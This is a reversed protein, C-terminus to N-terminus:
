QTKLFYLFYAAALLDASGGPSLSRAIFARDLKNLTETSPYPTRDLLSRIKRRLELQTERDSRAIVNTDDTAALIHLLAACGADNLSMGNAIGQELIPLGTQLVTPFGAEAEGRIGTIGYQTYLKQGTTRANEKTVGAFDRQSLGQVMAACEALLSEPSNRMEKSLRGAAGCLLGMTFIAGKHTNVGGTARYMTQEALRGHLRLRLFTEEPPLMQTEMGVRACDEFYPRLAAASSAFTFIDMDRHSGSNQRDVLGPKPTTCVEYLLSKEALSGISRSEAQWVADRLLSNTKQQLAEVSHARRSSCLFAPNGCLLCTREPLDLAQRSLKEGGPSLVDMDFLRGVSQSDEIEVTLRKIDKPDASVVYFAECGTHASRDEFHLIPIDLAALQARLTDNGIAFGDRILDSTKIPGPINMTFCILPKGFKVLLQRQRLVRAERADLIEQLTVKM